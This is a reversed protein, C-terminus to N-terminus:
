LTRITRHSPGLDLNTNVKLTRMCIQWNTAPLYHIGPLVLPTSTSTFNGSLDVQCQRKGLRPDRVVDHEQQAM